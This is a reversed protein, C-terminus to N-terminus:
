FTLGSFFWKKTGNSSKFILHYIDFWVPYIPQYGEDSKSGHHTKDLPHPCFNIWANCNQIVKVPSGIYLLFLWCFANTELIAAKNLIIQFIIFNYVIAFGGNPAFIHESIEGQANDTGWLETKRSSQESFVTWTESHGVIDASLYRLM